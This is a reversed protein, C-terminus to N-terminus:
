SPQLPLQLPPQERLQLPLERYIRLHLYLRHFVACLGFQMKAGTEAYGVIAIKGAHIAILFVVGPFVHAQFNRSLGDVPYEGMNRVIGVANFDVKDAAFGQQLKRKNFFNDAIYATFLRVYREDKEGSGVTGYKIIVHFCPKDGMTGTEMKTEAKVPIACGMVVVAAIGKVGDVNVEEQPVPRVLTDFHRKGLVGKLVERFIDLVQM